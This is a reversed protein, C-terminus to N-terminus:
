SLAAAVDTQTFDDGKFLLAADLHKSLAYAFCDGFNLAAAHRGRGFRRWGRFAIETLDRTVPEVTIAFVDLLSRLDSIGTEPNRADIVLMTELLNAATIAADGRSNFLAEEFREADPEGVLIAILASTDVALPSM